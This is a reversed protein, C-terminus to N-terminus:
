HRQTQRYCGAQSFYTSQQHDGRSADTHHIPGYHSHPLWWHDAYPAYLWRAYKPDTHDNRIFYMYPMTSAVAVPISCCLLWLNWNRRTEEVSLKEVDTIHLKELMETLSKEAVHCEGDWMIQSLAKGVPAFGADRLLRAGMFMRYRICAMLAKGGARAIGLSGFLSLPAVAAYLFGGVLASGVHEECQETGLLPLLASIDQIGGTVTGGFASAMEIHNSTLGPHQM